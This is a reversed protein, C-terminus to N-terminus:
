LHVSAVPPIFHPLYRTGSFDRIGKKREERGGYESDIIVVERNCLVM